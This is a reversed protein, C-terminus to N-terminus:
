MVAPLSSAFGMGAEVSVTLLDLADPIDARVLVRNNLLVDYWHLTFGTIPLGPTAGEDFSFVFDYKPNDGWLTRTYAEQDAEPLSKWIELNPGLGTDRVPNDFRTTVGLGWRAIDVEHIGQNGLDGNGTDWMWHWNYHFRNKTFPRKPAPGLWLDYDLHANTTTQGSSPQPSIASGTSDTWQGIASTNPLAACDLTPVVGNQDTLGGSVRYSVRNDTSGGNAGRAVREGRKPSM